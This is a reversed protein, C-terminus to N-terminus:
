LVGHYSRYWGVFSALGDALSTKPAFGTKKMLASCDASTELVDGPQMDAFQLRAQRGLAKELTRVFDDLAVPKANGINYVAWPAYSSAPDPHYRNWDPNHVPPLPILRIISEVVDDIYTFDRKMKGHNFLTITENALIKRTFEYYAMDPRGWPGYVTFFRLGSMPIGYLSAYAHGLLENSKKTAAYLSVPHDVSQSVAYPTTANAGYVSSSSAYILHAPHHQRCMELIHMFGVLNSATYVEPHDISYRVGAQAALHIVISAQAQEFVGRLANNDALDVRFGHFGTMRSLLAFRSEKLAVDYYPNFDDFGYVRCGLSLLRSAVHYGVFGAVGSVLVPTDSLGNTQMSRIASNEYTSLSKLAM